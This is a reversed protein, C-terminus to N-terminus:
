RPDGASRNPCRLPDYCTRQTGAVSLSPLPDRSPRVGAAGSNMLGRITDSKRLAPVRSYSPAGDGSRHPRRDFTSATAPRLRSRCCFRDSLVLSSTFLSVRMTRGGSRRTTRTTRRASANEPTAAPRRLPQSRSPRPRAKKAEAHGAGKPGDREECRGQVVTTLRRRWAGPAGAGPGAARRSDPLGLPAPGAGVRPSHPPAQPAASARPGSWHTWSVTPCSM